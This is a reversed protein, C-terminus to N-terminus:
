LHHSGRVRGGAHAVVRGLAAPVCVARFAAGAIGYVINIAGRNLFPDAGSKHIAGFIAHSVASLLALALALVEGAPTGALSVILDGLARGRFICMGPGSKLLHEVPKADARWRTSHM